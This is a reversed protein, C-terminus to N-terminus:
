NSSDPPGFPAIRPNSFTGKVEWDGTSSIREATEPEVLIVYESALDDVEIVGFSRDVAGAALGFRQEIREPTPPGDRVVISVMVKSMPELRRSNPEDGASPMIAFARYRDLAM